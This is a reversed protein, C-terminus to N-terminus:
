VYALLTNSYSSKTNLVIDIQCVSRDLYTTMSFQILTISSGKSNMCAFCSLSHTYVQLNFRVIGGFIHYDLFSPLWQFILMIANVFFLEFLHKTTTIVKNNRKKCVRVNGLTSLAFINFTNILTCMLYSM